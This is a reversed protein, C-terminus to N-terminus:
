NKTYPVFYGSLKQSFSESVATIAEIPDKTFSLTILPEDFRWRPGGDKDHIGIRDIRQFLIGKNVLRQITDEIDKITAFIDKRVSGPDLLRAVVETYYVANYGSKLDSKVWVITRCVELEQEDMDFYTNLLYEDIMKNSRFLLNEKQDLMKKLPHFICNHNLSYDKNKSEYLEKQTECNQIINLIPNDDYDMFLETIAKQREYVTDDKIYDSLGFMFKLRM